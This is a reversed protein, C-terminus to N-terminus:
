FINNFKYLKYFQNKGVLDLKMNVSEEVFFYINKKNNAKTFDNLDKKLIDNLESKTLNSFRRNIELFMEEQKQFKGKKGFYINEYKVDFFYIVDFDYYLNPNIRGFINGGTIIVSSRSNEKILSFLKYNSSHYNFNKYSKYPLLYFFFTLLFIFLGGSWAGKKQIFKNKSLFMKKLFLSITFAFFLM